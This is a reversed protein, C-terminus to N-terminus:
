TEKPQDVIEYKQKPYDSHYKVTIEQLYEHDLGEKVHKKNLWLIRDNDTITAIGNKIYIKRSINAM